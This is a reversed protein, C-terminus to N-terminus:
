ISKFTHTFLKIQIIVKHIVTALIYFLLLRAEEIVYELRTLLNRPKFVTSISHNRKAFDLTLVYELTRLPHVGSLSASWGSGVVLHCICCSYSRTKSFPFDRSVLEMLTRSSVDCYHIFFKGIKVNGGM